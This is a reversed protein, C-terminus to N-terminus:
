GWAASAGGDEAGTRRPPPPGCLVRLLVSVCLGSEQPRGATGCPGGPSCPQARHCRLAWVGLVHARAPPADGRPPRCGAGATVQRGRERRCRSGSAGGPSTAPSPSLSAEVWLSAPRRPEPQAGRGDQHCHSEPRVPPQVSHPPTSPPPQWEPVGAGASTEAAGGAEPIDPFAHGGSPGSSLLAPQGAPRSDGERGVHGTRWGEQKFLTFHCGRTPTPSRATSDLGSAGVRSRQSLSDQRHDLNNGRTQAPTLAGAPALTEEGQGQAGRGLMLGRPPLAQAHLPHPHSEPTIGLGAPGVCRLWLSDM